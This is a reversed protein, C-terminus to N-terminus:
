YGSVGRQYLEERNLPGVSPGSKLPRAALEDLFRLFEALHQNEATGGAPPRDNQTWEALLNQVVEPLSAAAAAAKRSARQYVDDAVSITLTKM